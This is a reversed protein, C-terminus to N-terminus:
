KWELSSLAQSSAVLMEKAGWLGDPSERKGIGNCIMTGLSYCECMAHPAGCLARSRSPPLQTLGQSVQAALNFCANLTWCCCSIGALLLFEWRGQQKGLHRGFSPLPQVSAELVPWRFSILDRPSLSILAPLATFPPSALLHPQSGLEEPFSSKEKRKKKGTLFSKWV